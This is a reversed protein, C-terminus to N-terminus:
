ALFHADVWAIVNIWGSRELMQLVGVIFISGLQFAKVLTENGKDADTLLVLGSHADTHIM